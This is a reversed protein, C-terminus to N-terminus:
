LLTIVTYEITAIISGDGLTLAPTTGYLILTIPKNEVGTQVSGTLFGIQIFGVMNEVQDAFGAMLSGSEIAGPLDIFAPYIANDPNGITFATTNYIYQLSLSIPKAWQNVGPAPVIEFGLNTATGAHTEAAGSPNSLTLTTATCATAQFTGNNAPNTFGVITYYGDVLANATGCNTITGTYVTEGGGADAAETLTNVSNFELLKATTLTITQSHLKTTSGTTLVTGSEDPLTIVREGGTSAGTIKFHNTAPTGSTGAIYADSFPLSTSGLTVGSATIPAAATASIGLAGRLSVINSTTLSLLGIDGSNAQNRATIINVNNSVRIVGSQAPNTGIAISSLGSIFDGSSCTPAADSNTAIVFQNTCSGTGSASGSSTVFNAGNGKLYRGSTATNVAGTGGNAATVTAAAVLQRSATSGLLAASAPVVGGNVQAVTPNPYTGSLDGGAAGSPPASTNGNSASAPSQNMIVEIPGSTYLSARVCLQTSGGVGFRWTGTALAGTVGAGSPQPMGTIAIWSGENDASQEFEVKGVFTGMLTVTASGATSTLQLVVADDSACSTAEASIRANCQKGSPCDTAKATGLTLMLAALFVLVRKM